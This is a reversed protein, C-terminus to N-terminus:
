CALGGGLVSDRQYLVVSQGPAVRRQRESLVVDGSNGVVGAVPRGHASMQVEVATGPPVPQDVWTFATMAIRDVLLEDLTGVTVTAAAIDVDLAYRREAGEGVGIGRRQGVTVLEVAPIKGVEQGTAALLLRAPHLPIRDGLFAERGGTRTIFCVDQSDPKAATRLGLEAARARVDAKTMEGVPLLVRRLESQTLM